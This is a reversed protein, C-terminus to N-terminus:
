GFLQKLIQKRIDKYCRNKFKERFNSPNIDFRNKFANRFTRANSYGVIISINYIEIDTLLLKVSEKLRITEIQKQPSMMFYHHTIDRLYSQSINLKEALHPVTFETDRFYKRIEEEILKKM